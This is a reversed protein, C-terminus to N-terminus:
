QSASAPPWCSISCRWAMWRLHLRLNLSPAWPLDVEAAGTAAASLASLFALAAALGGVPAAWNPRVRGLVLAAPGALLSLALPVLLLM